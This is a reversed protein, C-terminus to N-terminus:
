KKGNEKVKKKNIASTITEKEKIKKGKELKKVNKKVINWDCISLEYVKGRDGKRYGIGILSTYGGDRVPLDNYAKIFWKTKKNHKLYKEINRKTSLGKDTALMNLVRDSFSKLAKAKVETTVLKGNQVLSMFQSIVLLERPGRRNGIKLIRKNNM